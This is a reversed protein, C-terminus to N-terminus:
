LYAAFKLLDEPEFSMLRELVSLHDVYMGEEIVITKTSVHFEGDNLDWWLKLNLRVAMITVDKETSLEVKHLMDVLNKIDNNAGAAAALAKKVAVMLLYPQMETLIGGETKSAM